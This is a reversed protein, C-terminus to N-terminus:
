FRNNNGYFELLVVKGNKIELLTNVNAGFGTNVCVTKGVRTKGFHEHIHGGVNILPHFRKVLSRVVISGFHKGHM